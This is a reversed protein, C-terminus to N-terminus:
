STAPMSRPTYAPHTKPENGQSRSRWCTFPQRMKNLFEVVTVTSCSGLSVLVLEMPGPGTEHDGGDTRVTHGSATTGDFRAGGVHAITAITEM